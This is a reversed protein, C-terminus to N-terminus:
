PRSRSYATALIVLVYAAYPLKVQRNSLPWVIPVGPELALDRVYHALMGAAVPRSLAAVPLVAFLSHTNPRLDGPQPDQFALPIHDVDPLLSGALYPLSPRRALLVATALHAPEDLFGIQFWSPRRTQIIYDAAAITALCGAALLRRKV